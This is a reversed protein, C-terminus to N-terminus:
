LGDHTTGPAIEHSIKKYNRYLALSKGRACCFDGVNCKDAYKDTEGVLSGHGPFCPCRKSRTNGACTAQPFYQVFLPKPFVSSFGSEGQTLLYPLAQAATRVSLGKAVMWGFLLRAWCGVPAWASCLPISGKAYTEQSGAM